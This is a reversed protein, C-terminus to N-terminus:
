NSKQDSRYKLYIEMQRPSLIRDMMATNSDNLADMRRSLDETNMKMNDLEAITTLYEGLRAEVLPIQDESLKLSKTLEKLQKNVKLRVTEKMQARDMDQAFSSIPAMFLCIMSLITVIKKM